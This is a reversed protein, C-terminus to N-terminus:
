KQHCDQCVGRNNLRLLASDSAPSVTANATMTASAGHAQHCTLCSTIDGTQITANYTSQDVPLKTNANLNTAKASGVAVDVPHRYRVVAGNGDGADYTGSTGGAVTGQATKYQTHCAVCWTSVKGGSKYADATYSKAQTGSFETENSAVDSVSVGNVSIKLIRYNSNGHPDHCSVCTLTMTTGSGTNGGGWATYTTSDSEINHKSTIAAQGTTRGSRGTYTFAQAFGGGNLGANTEGYVQTGWSTVGGTFKGNYADTNAGLGDKHCTYCFEAYSPGGNLLSAHIATHARHCGACGDTLLVYGGHPGGNALALGSMALFAVLIFSFFVVKRM